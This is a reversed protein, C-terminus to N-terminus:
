ISIYVRKRWHFRQHFQILYLFQQTLNLTKKTASVYLRLTFKSTDINDKFHLFM